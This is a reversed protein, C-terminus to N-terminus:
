RWRLRMWLYRQADIPADRDIMEVKLKRSGCACCRFPLRWVSRGSGLLRSLDHSSFIAERDCPHCTVKFQISLRTPDGLSRITRVM